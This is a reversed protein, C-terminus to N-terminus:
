RLATASDGAKAAELPSRWRLYPSPTSPWVLAIDHRLRELNLRDEDEESVGAPIRWARSGALMYRPERGIVKTRPPAPPINAGAAATFRDVVGDLRNDDYAELIATAPDLLVQADVLPIDERTLGPKSQIQPRDLVFFRTVEPSEPQDSDIARDPGEEFWKN